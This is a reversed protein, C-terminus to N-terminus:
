GKRKKLVIAMMGGLLVMGILLYIMNGATSKKRCDGDEKASCDPDCIGEAVRDCATDDQGSPCDASCKMYNEGADCFRNGCTCDGPCTDPSESGDCMRNENCSSFESLDVDLLVSGNKLIQLKKAHPFYPLLLDFSTKQVQNSGHAMGKDLPISYFGETFLNFTTEYLVENQFSLVRAAYANGKSSPAPAADTLTIGGLAMKDGEYTFYASYSLAFANPLFIVLMLLVSLPKM